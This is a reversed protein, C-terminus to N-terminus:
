RRRTSVWAPIRGRGTRPRYADTRRVLLRLLAAVVLAVPVSVLVAAAMQGGLFGLTPLKSLTVPLTESNTSESLGSSFLFDNWSFVFVVVSTAAVAPRAMPLIIRVIRQRTGAGDLLAAEVVEDPVQRFAYALFWVALPLTFSLQAFGITPLRDLLDLRAARLRLPLLLLVGPFFALALMAALVRARGPVPLRVLAYAAPIAVLLSVLTTGVSLLVSHRLAPYFGFAPSALARYNDLTFGTPMLGAGAPDPALSLVVVYWLPLVAFAVVLVGGVRALLQSV